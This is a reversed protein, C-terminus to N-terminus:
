LAYLGDDTVEVMFPPYPEDEEKRPFTVVVRFRSGQVRSCELKWQPKDRWWGPGPVDNEGIPDEKSLDPLRLAGMVVLGYDNVLTDLADSIDQNFEPLPPSQVLHANVSDIVMLHPRDVLRALTHGVHRLQHLLDASSVPRSVIVREMCAMSMADVTDQDLEGYGPDLRPRKHVGSERQHLQFCRVIHARCLQYLRRPEFRADMDIWLVSRGKGGLEVVLEQGNVSLAMRPPVITTLTFFYFLNSKATDPEGHFSLFTGGHLGNAHGLHHQIFQDLPPL